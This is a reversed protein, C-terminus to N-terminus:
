RNNYQLKNWLTELFAICDGVYGIDAINFIPAFRDTNVSIIYESSSMGALHQLAGSIGCAIYVKPHVSTGTQGVQASYPALGANVAPRTAAVPCGLYDAIVNLLRFGEKGAGLGGALIIDSQEFDITSKLAKHSLLKMPDIVAECPIFTIKGRRGSNQEPGASLAHVTAMQPFDGTGVIEALINGGFAPRTQVLIGESDIRLGICDATLGTELLAAMQPAITRGYLTAAILLIGPRMSRCCGAALRSSVYESRYLGPRGDDLVYVLDAGAQIAEDSFPAADRGIYIAAVESYKENKIELSKKILDLSLRNTKNNQVECIVWIQSNM